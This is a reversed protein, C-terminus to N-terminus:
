WAFVVAEATSVAARGDPLLEANGGAPARRGARKHLCVFANWAQDGLRRVGGDVVDAGQVTARFSIAGTQEVDLDDAEHRPRHLM